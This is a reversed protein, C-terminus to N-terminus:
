KGTGSLPVKLRGQSITRVYLTADHKGVTKPSFSVKVSLDTCPWIQLVDGRTICKVDAITFPLDPHKPADTAVPEEEQPTPADEPRPRRVVPAFALPVIFVAKKFHSETIDFPEAFGKSMFGFLGRGRVSVRVTMVKSKGLPIARFDLREHDSRLNEETLNGGTIPINIFKHPENTEVYLYATLKGIARPSFTIKLTCTRGAAISRGICNNSLITFDSANPGTLKTSLVKLPRSGMNSLVYITEADGQKINVSIGPTTEPSPSPSPPPSTFDPPKLPPSPSDFSHPAQTTGRFTELARRVGVYTVAMVSIVTFFFVILVSAPLRQFNEWSPAFPAVSVNETLSDFEVEVFEIEALEPPLQRDEDCFYGSIFSGKKGLSNAYRWENEVEQSGAANRSWFLLFRNSERILQKLRERWLEGGLIHTRDRLVEYGAGRLGQCIVKVKAEDERAYSAFAKGPGLRSRLYRRWRPAIFYHLSLIILLGILLAAAIAIVNVM